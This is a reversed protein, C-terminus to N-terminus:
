GSTNVARGHPSAKEGVRAQSMRSTWQQAVEPSGRRGLSLRFRRLVLLCRAPRAAAAMKPGAAAMADHASLAASSHRPPARAYESGCESDTQFPERGAGSCSVTGPGGSSSCGTVFPLIQDHAAGSGWCVPVKGATGVEAVCSEAAGLGNTAM